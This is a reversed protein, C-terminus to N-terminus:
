LTLEFNNLTIILVFTYYNNIGGKTIQKVEATQKVGAAVSFLIRSPEASSPETLVM